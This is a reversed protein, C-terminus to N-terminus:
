IYSGHDSMKTIHLSNIQSSGNSTCYGGAAWMDAAPGRFRNRHKGAKVNRILDSGVFLPKCKFVPFHQDGAIM